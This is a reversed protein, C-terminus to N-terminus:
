KFAIKPYTHYLPPQNVEARIMLESDASTSKPMSSTKMNLNINNMTTIRRKEPISVFFMETMM